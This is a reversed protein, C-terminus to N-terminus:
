DAIAIAKELRDMNQSPTLKRSEVSNLSDM